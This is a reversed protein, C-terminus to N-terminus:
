KYGEVITRPLHQLSTRTPLPPGDRLLLAAAHKSDVPTLGTRPNVLVLRRQAIGRDKGSYPELSTDLVVWPIHPAGDTELWRRITVDRQAADCPLLHSGQMVSSDRLEETFEARSHPDGLWPSMLVLTAAREERLLRLAEIAAACVVPRHKRSLPEPRLVGDIQVFCFSM